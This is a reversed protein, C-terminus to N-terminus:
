SSLPDSSAIKLRAAAVRRAKKLFAEATLVGSKELSPDVCFVPLVLDGGPAETALHLGEFYLGPINLLRLEFEDKQVEPLGHSERIRQFATRVLDGRVVNRFRPQGYLQADTMECSIETGDPGIAFFRCGKSTVDALTAGKALQELGLTGVPLHFLEVKSWSPGFYDSLSQQYISLLEPPPPIDRLPM